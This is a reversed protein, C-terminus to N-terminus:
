EYFDFQRVQGNLIECFIRSYNNNLFSNFLNIKQSELGSLGRLKIIMLSLVVLITFYKFEYNSLAYSNHSEKKNLSRLQRAIIHSSKSYIKETIQTGIYLMKNIANGLHRM